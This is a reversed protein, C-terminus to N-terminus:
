YSVELVSNIAEEIMNEVQGVTAYKVGEETPVNGKEVFYVVDEQADADAPLSEVILYEMDDSIKIRQSSSIDLYIAKDDTTFILQGERVPLSSLQSNLIKYPKFLAM